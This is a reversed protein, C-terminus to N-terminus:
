AVRIIATTVQRVLNQDELSPDLMREIEERAQKNLDALRARAARGDSLQLSEAAADESLWLYHRLAREIERIQDGTLKDLRAAPVQTELSGMVRFFARGTPVQTVTRVQASSRSATDLLEGQLDTSALALVFNVVLILANLVLITKNM